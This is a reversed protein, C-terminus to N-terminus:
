LFDGLPSINGCGLHPHHELDRLLRDRELRSDACLSIRMKAVDDLIALDNRRGFRHDVHIELLLCLGDEFRERRAFFLDDLHPEADAVAALSRELLDTLTQPDGALADALNLGPRKM